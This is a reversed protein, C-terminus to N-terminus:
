GLFFSNHMLITAVATVALSQMTLVICGVDSVRTM